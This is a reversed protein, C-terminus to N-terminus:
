PLARAHHMRRQASRVIVLSTCTTTTWTRTGAGTRCSASAATGSKRPPASCWPRSGTGACGARPCRRPTGTTRAPSTCARAWTGCSARACPARGWSCPRSRGWPGGHARGGGGGGVGGERRLCRGGKRVSKMHALGCRATVRGRGRVGRALTHLLSSIRGLGMNGAMQRRGAADPAAGERTRTRTRMRM